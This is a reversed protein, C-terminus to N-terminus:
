EMDNKYRNLDIWSGIEADFSESYVNVSGSNSYFTLEGFVIKGDINYLDVRVHPFPKCLREAIKIMEDINDPMKVEDSPLSSEKKFLSDISKKQMDFKHNRVEHSFEGVSIMFYKPVGSFCYFKYDVLPSKDSNELVEEIIIKPKINKYSWECAVDSYNFKLLSNFYKKTHEINIEDKKILYNCGSMHNCRMFFREPLKEFDIQNADNYIGYITRLISEYGCAKVYEGAYYKDSCLTLLPNRYHLKLYLLKDTFTKPNKIDPERDKYKKNARLCIREDDLLLRKIKVRIIQYKIYQREFYLFVNNGSLAIKKM